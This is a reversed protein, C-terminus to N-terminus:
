AKKMTQLLEPHSLEGSFEIAAALNMKEIMSLLKKEEPGKGCLKAKISPIKNKLESIVEIFIEYQKLPILSGAGIIDIEKVPMGDKFLDPDIGPPIVWEPTIGHNKSFETQIFDSLAILEGSVPKIWKVWRNNKKADQGLLWCFHKLKNKGAFWKGTFACEGCWFSLLGIITNDKKIKILAKWITYRLLWGGAVPITKGGFSIVRCGAIEYKAKFPPYHFSLVVIELSPFLKKVAKVFVQQPPM